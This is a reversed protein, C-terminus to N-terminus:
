KIGMCEIMKEDGWLESAPWGSLYECLGQGLMYLNPTTVIYKGDQVASRWGCPCEPDEEFGKATCASQPAKGFVQQGEGKCAARWDPAIVIRFCKKPAKGAHYRPFNKDLCAQVADIKDDIADATPQDVINGSPYVLAGDPTVIVTGDVPYHTVNPRSIQPCGCGGLFILAATIYIIQIKRRTRM